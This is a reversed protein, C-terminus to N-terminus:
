AAATLRLAPSETGVFCLEFLTLHDQNTVTMRWQADDWFTAPADCILRGMMKIAECKAAAIDKLEEGDCPIMPGGDEVNFHYIPM